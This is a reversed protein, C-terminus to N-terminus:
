QREDGREIKKRERGRGKERRGSKRKARAVEREAM